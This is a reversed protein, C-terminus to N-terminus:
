IRLPPSSCTFIASSSIIFADAEEIVRSFALNGSQLTQDFYEKLGPEEIHLGGNSLTHIIDKNVDVGVVKVGHNAFMLATPLGIYGQGLICIKKM